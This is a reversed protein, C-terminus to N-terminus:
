FKKIYHGIKTETELVKKAPLEVVSKANTYSKGIKGPPIAIDIGVIRFNGDLYLVDIEYKMFFTHVSRCPKIHLAGGSPFTNTFMLGRLRWWFSYAETVHKALIKGNSLNVLQKM